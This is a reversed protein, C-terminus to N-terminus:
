PSNRGKASNESKWLAYEKKLCVGCPRYGAERATEQDQFFVRNRVYQGKQIYRAASPCDLTGYIKLKCHGGYQGPKSSLEVQGSGNVLFYPKAQIEEESAALLLRLKTLLLKDKAFEKDVAAFRLEGEGVGYRKWYATGIAPRIAYRHLYGMQDLLKLCRLLNVDPEAMVERDTDYYEYSSYQKQEAEDEDKPQPLLSLEGFIYWLGYTIDREDEDYGDWFLYQGPTEEPYTEPRGLEFSLPKSGLEATYAPYFDNSILEGAQVTLETEFCVEPPAFLQRVEKESWFKRAQEETLAFGNDRFAEWFGPLERLMKVYSNYTRVQEQVQLVEPADESMLGLCRALGRNKLSIDPYTYLRPASPQKGPEPRAEILIHRNQKEM